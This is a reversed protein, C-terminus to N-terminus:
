PNLLHRKLEFTCFVTMHSTVVSVQQNTIRQPPLPFWGTSRSSNRRSVNLIWQLQGSNNRCERGPYHDHGSLAPITIMGLRATARLPCWHQDPHLLYREQTIVHSQCCRRSWERYQRWQLDAMPLIPKYNHPHQNGAIFRIFPLMWTRNGHSAPAPQIPLQCGSPWSREGQLGLPPAFPEHTESLGHSQVGSEESM